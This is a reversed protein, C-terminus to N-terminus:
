PGSKEIAQRLPPESVPRDAMLEEMEPPINFVDMPGTPRMVGYWKFRDLFLDNRRALYLPTVTGDTQPWLKMRKLTNDEFVAELNSSNTLTVKNVTSDNEEPYFLAQVNGAVLLRSLHGDDFWATMTKGALQNYYDADLWQASFAQDPLDARDITSDNLHVNILNGLIQRDDSWVVPHHHLRVTSDRQTFVLSDCLGQMDTRYFRARPWATIVHTTDMIVTAADTVPTEQLSDPVPTHIVPANTLTDTVAVSTLYHAHVYLTDGRSYEMALARGTVFASDTFENYYGYDGTLISSRVTDVLAMNGFAQGYGALRDYFLTDGELTTGDRRTTVRSHAYLLAIQTDTNYTGDDSEITGDKNTIVTPTHFEAQHTLTNYYLQQSELRLNDGKRVSTLVVNDYFNAEKTAPSYEGELSELRNAPDTLVGGTNYYGLDLGLDYTFIDTELRVDRNILRVPRDDGFLNAIDTRADYNLEDAYVFLTDGQEMRVNGFADFSGTELYYHASDCYMQMPGKSFHVNGTFITYPDQQNKHLEAAHELVVINERREVGPINPAIRIDSPITLTHTASTQAMVALVALPLAVVLTLVAAM